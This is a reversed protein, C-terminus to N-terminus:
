SHASKVRASTDRDLIHFPGNVSTHFYRHFVLTNEIVRVIGGACVISIRPLYKNVGIHLVNLARQEM